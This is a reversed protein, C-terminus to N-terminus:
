DGSVHDELRALDPLPLASLLEAFAARCAAGHWGGSFLADPFEPVRLVLRRWEHLVIERLAVRHLLTLHEFGGTKALETLRHALTQSAAQVEPPCLKDSVWQPVAGQGDIPLVWDSPTDGAHLTVVAHPGIQVSGRAGALRDADFPTSPDDLVLVPPTVPGHAAYIRPRAAETQSRGLSTLGYRSQRGSRQSDIWGEKRLRHLAVRTTEPRIGIAATLANLCTGSLRADTSLALDGFITVLLSWVRPPTEGLLQVVLDDFRVRSM